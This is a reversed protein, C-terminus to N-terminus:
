IAGTWRGPEACIWEPARCCVGMAQAVYSRSHTWLHASIHRSSLSLSPLLHHSKTKQDFLLPSPDCREMLVPGPAYSLSPLTTGDLLQVAAVASLVRGDSAGLQAHRVVRSETQVAGHAGGALAATLAATLPALATHVAAGGGAWGTVTDSSPGDEIALTVVLRTLPALRAVAAEAAAVAQAGAARRSLSSRLAAVAAAASRGVAAADGDPLCAWAINAAGVTVAGPSGGGAAACPFLVLPLADPGAADTALSLLEAEAVPGDSDRAWPREVCGRALDSGVAAACVVAADWGGSSSAAAVAQIALGLGDAPPLALALLEDEDPLAAQPVHLALYGLPACLMYFALMGGAIALSRFDPPTAADLADQEARDPKKKFLKLATVGVLIAIAVATDTTLEFNEPLLARIETALPRVLDELADM